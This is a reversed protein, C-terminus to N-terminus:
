PIITSQIETFDGKVGSENQWQMAIYVRKGRDEERFRLLHPSRTALEAHGLEDPELPAKDLVAWSV